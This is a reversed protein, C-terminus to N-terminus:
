VVSVGLGTEDRRTLQLRRGVSLIALGFFEAANPRNTFKDMATSFDVASDGTQERAMKSFLWLSLPVGM